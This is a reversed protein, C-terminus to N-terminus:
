RGGLERLLQQLPAFGPRLKAAAQLVRRGEDRRGVYVLLRGLNFQASFHAPDLEITRRYHREADDLRDEAFCATAYNNHAAPANPLLQVARAFHELARRSDGRRGYIAGIQMHALACDSDLALARRYDREAAALDRRVEGLVGREVWVDPAGPSIRCAREIARSAVAFNGRARELQSKKMLLNWADPLKELDRDVSALQLAPRDREDHLTLSLTLTAMEDESRQGFRVRRRPHVPNNRNGDSNDYGYAMTVRTGAPLRMPQRYHYDDQWDFDWDDIAFLAKQTGDPLVADARMTRCVYHAHPYIAHLTVPVPLVLHDEVVYDTEGAAIDIEESFLMVTDFVQETPQDTFWLGIEPQVREPKGVPVAHLQLVFDDGPRLRWAMGRPNRRVSKGPTWGMFHGDPPVAAGLTMGGFGPEPDKEDQQRSQRTRDVMLVAHHVAPNGPRVEVAAVYRLRDVAVPVVYNRVIDPGDAPVALVDPMRVVLDPRGLQWDDAFTPPEPEADRDGRPAGAEVWRSLTAIEDDTLRRDGIFEGATPKWPPMYRDEVVDLVFRARKQVDRYTLLDFPAPQGPRHCPACSRHVIAAVDRAWTPASQQACLVAPLLMLLLLHRPM